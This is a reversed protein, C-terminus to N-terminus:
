MVMYKEYFEKASIQMSCGGCIFGDLNEPDGFIGDEKNIDFYQTCVLCEKVEDKKGELDQIVELALDKFPIFGPSTIQGSDPDYKIEPYNMNQIIFLWYNANFYKKVLLNAEDLSYTNFQQKSSM